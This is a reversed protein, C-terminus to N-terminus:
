LSPWIGREGLIQKLLGTLVNRPGVEVFIRAGQQYITEIEEVFRVPKILHETLLSKICNPDGSYSAGLTNSFVQLRPAQFQTTSLIKALRECAAAVLPSHFACAVPLRRAQVGEQSLREIARTIGDQTGSIVTQRPANLNAISVGDILKLIEALREPGETVAAM